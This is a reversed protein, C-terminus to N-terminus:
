VEETGAAEELDLSVGRLGTGFLNYLFAIALVLADMLVMYLAAFLLTSLFKLVLTMGVMQPNPLIVFTVLGGFVGLTALVASLVPKTAILVAVGMVVIGLIGVFNRDTLHGILAVVAGAAVLVPIMPHTIWYPDIRKIQYSM